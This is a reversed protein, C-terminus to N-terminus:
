WARRLGLTLGMGRVAVADGTAESSVSGTDFRGSVQLRTRAGLVVAGGLEASLLRDRRGGERIGRRFEVRPTVVVSAGVPLALLATANAIWEHSGLNAGATDRAAGNYFVWANLGLTQRGLPAAYDAELISRLGPRYRGGPGADVTSRVFEDSTFTSATVRLGLRGGLALGSASAHLRGELGPEFRSPEDSVPQFAGAWRVAGGFGLNVGGLRRAVALGGTAAPGARFRAVPFALMSSATAGIVARDVTSPATGVPLDGVLTVVAVDRGLVFSARVEADALGSFRRTWGDHSALETNAWAGSVAFAMRRGVAIQATLPVSLQTVRRAGIGPDFRFSRILMGTGADQAWDLGPLAVGLATLMAPWITRTM